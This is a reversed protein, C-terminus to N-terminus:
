GVPYVDITGSAVSRSQLTRKTPQSEPPSCKMPRTRDTSRSRYTLILTFTLSDISNPYPALVIPRFNPRSVSILVTEVISRKPRPSEGGENGGVARCKDRSRRGSFKRVVITLNGRASLKGKFDRATIKEAEGLARRNAHSRWYKGFFEVIERGDNETM